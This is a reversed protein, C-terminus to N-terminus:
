SGSLNHVNPFFVDKWTDPKVKISGIKTMFDAYKMINQPTQTYVINPDNLM